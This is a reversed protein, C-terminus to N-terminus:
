PKSLHTRMAECRVLDTTGQQWQWPPPLRAQVRHQRIGTLLCRQSHVSFHTEGALRTIGQTCSRVCPTCHTSTQSAHHLFMRSYLRPHDVGHGRAASLCPISKAVGVEVPDDGATCDPITRRLPTAVPAKRRFRPHNVTGERNTLLGSSDLVPTAQSTPRWRSRKGRQATYAARARPESPSAATRRGGGKVPPGKSGRCRGNGNPPGHVPHPVPFLRPQGAGGNGMRRVARPSTFGGLPSDAQAGSVSKM